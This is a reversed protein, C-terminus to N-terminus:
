MEPSSPAGLGGRPGAAGDIQDGMAQRGDVAGALELGLKVQRAGPEQAPDGGLQTQRKTESASFRYSWGNSILFCLDGM